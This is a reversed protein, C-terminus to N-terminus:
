TLRYARRLKENLTTTISVFSTIPNRDRGCWPRTPDIIVGYWDHYIGSGPLSATKGYNGTVPVDLLTFKAKNFDSTRTSMTVQNAKFWTNDTNTGTLTIANSVRPAPKSTPTAMTYIIYSDLIVDESFIPQIVTAYEQVVDDADPSSFDHADFTGYDHGGVPENWGLVPLSAVHNLLTTHYFIKVFAPYLTYITM